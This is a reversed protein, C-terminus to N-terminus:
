MTSKAEEYSVKCILFVLVKCSICLLFSESSFWRSGALLHLVLFHQLIESIRLVAIMALCYFVEFFLLATLWTRELALCYSCTQIVQLGLREGLSLVPSFSFRVSLM